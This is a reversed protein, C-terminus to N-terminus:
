REAILEAARRALMTEVTEREYRDYNTSRNCYATGDNDLLVVEGLRLGGLGDLLWEATVYEHRQRPKGQTRGWSSPNKGPSSFHYLRGDLTVLDVSAGDNWYNKSPWYGLIFGEPSYVSERKEGGLFFPRNKRVQDIEVKKPPVGNEVLKQVFRALLENIDRAAQEAGRRRRDAASQQDVKQQNASSQERRIADDFSTRTGPLDATASQLDGRTVAAAAQSTRRELETADIRGALYSDNIVSLAEQREAHGVRLADDSSVHSPPPEPEPNAPTDFISPM